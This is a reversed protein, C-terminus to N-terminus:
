ISMFHAMHMLTKTDFNKFNAYKRFLNRYQLFDTPLADEKRLIAVLAALESVDNKDVADDRVLKAFYGPIIYLLKEASDNQQKLM